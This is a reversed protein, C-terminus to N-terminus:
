TWAIKSFFFARQQDTATRELYRLIDRASIIGRLQGRALVPMHRFRGRAMAAMVDHLDDDPTCAEVDRIMVSSVTEDLELAGRLGIARVLDRESLIGAVDGADNAVIVVGFNHTALLRAADLLTADPALTVVDGGSTKVLDSVKM